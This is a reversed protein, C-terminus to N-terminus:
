SKKRVEPMRPFRIIGDLWNQVSKQLLANLHPRESGAMPELLKVKLSAWVPSPFMKSVRQLGERKILTRLGAQALFQMPRRPNPETRLRFWRFHNLVNVQSYMHIDKLRKHLVGAGKLQVEIRTLTDRPEFEFTRPSQKAKLEALKNYFLTTRDASVQPYYSIVGRSRFIKYNQVKPILCNGVFFEVSKGCIDVCLDIRCIKAHEISGFVIKTIELVRQLGLSAVEIFELKHIGNYYGRCHLRAPIKYKTERLDIVGSYGGKKEGDDLALEEFRSNIRRSLLILKDIM